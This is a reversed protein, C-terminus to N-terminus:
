DFLNEFSNSYNKMVTKGDDYTYVQHVLKINVKGHFETQLRKHKRGNIKKTVKAFRWGKDYFSVVEGVEIDKMEFCGKDPQRYENKIQEKYSIKRRRGM